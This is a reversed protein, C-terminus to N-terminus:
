EALNAARRGPLKSVAPDANLEFKGNHKDTRWFGWSKTPHSMNAKSCCAPCCPSLPLATFAFPVTGSPALAAGGARGGPQDARGPESHLAQQAATSGQGGGRECM